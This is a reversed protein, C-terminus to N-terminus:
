KERPLQLKSKSTQRASNSDPRSPADNVDQHTDSCGHSKETAANHPEAGRSSPLLFTLPANSANSSNNNNNSNNTNTITNSIQPTMLPSSLPSLLSSSSSSPLTDKSTSADSSLNLSTDESNSISLSSNDLSSLESSEDVSQSPNNSIPPSSPCHQSPKLSPYSSFVSALKSKPSLQSPSSPRPIGCAELLAANNPYLTRTSLTGTTTPCSLPPAAKASSSPSTTLLLSSPSSPSPLPSSVSISLSSSPSTLTTTASQTSLSAASTPSTLTTTASQTSLPAASTPATTQRGQATPRSHREAAREGQVTHRPQHDHQPSLRPAGALHHSGPTDRTHNGRIVGTAKVSNHNMAGPM